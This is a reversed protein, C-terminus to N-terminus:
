LFDMKILLFSLPVSCIHKKIVRFDYLKEFLIHRRFCHQFVIKM